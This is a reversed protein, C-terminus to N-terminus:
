TEDTEDGKRKCIEADKLRYLDSVILLMPGRVMKQLQQDLEAERGESHQFCSAIYKWSAVGPM